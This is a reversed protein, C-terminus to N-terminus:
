FHVLGLRMRHELEGGFQPRQEDEKGRVGLKMQKDRGAGEHHRDDCRHDRRIDHCSVHGQHREDGADDHQHESRQREHQV